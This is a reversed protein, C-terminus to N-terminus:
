TTNHHSKTKPKLLFENLIQISNSNSDFCSISFGKLNEFGEQAWDEALGAAREKKAKGKERGTAQGLRKGNEWIARSPRREPKSELSHSRGV